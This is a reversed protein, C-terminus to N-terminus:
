QEVEVWLKVSRGVLECHIVFTIDGYKQNLWRSCLINGLSQLHSRNVVKKLDPVEKKRSCQIELTGAWLDTKRKGYKKIESIDIERSKRKNNVAEEIKESIKALKKLWYEDYKSSSKRRRLKSEEETIHSSVIIEDKHELLFKRISEADEIEITKIIDSLFIMYVYMQLEDEHESLFKKIYDTNVEEGVTEKVNASLLSVLKDYYKLHIWDKLVEWAHPLAREIEKKKKQQQYIEEALREAKGSAVNEKSLYDIFRSAVGDLNQEEIIDVMWFKREELQVKEMPLYFWWEIGNTLIALPVGERFAYDLLQEEHNKLRAGPRKAEIFVKNTGSIRLSYDVSLGGVDCEPMVEETDKTNWGLIELLPLVIAQKIDAESHLKEKTERKEEIFSVIREKMDLNEEYKQLETLRGEKEEEWHTKWWNIYKSEDGNKVEPFADQLDKCAEYIKRQLENM